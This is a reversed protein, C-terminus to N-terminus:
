LSQLYSDFAGAELMAAFFALAMKRCQKIVDYDPFPTSANYHNVMDEEDYFPMGWVQGWFASECDQPAFHENYANVLEESVYFEDQIQDVANEIAYCSGEQYDNEAARRISEVIRAQMAKDLQLYYSM